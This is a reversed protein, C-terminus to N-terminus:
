INAVLMGRFAPSKVGTMTPTRKALSRYLEVPLLCRSPQQLSDLPHSPLLLLM